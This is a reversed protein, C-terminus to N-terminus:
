GYASHRLYPSRWSAQFVTQVARADQRHGPASSRPSRHRGSLRHRLQSSLIVAADAGNPPRKLGSAWSAAYSGITSWFWNVFDAQFVVAYGMIAHPPQGLAAPGNVDPGAIVLLACPDTVTNTGFRQCPQEQGFDRAAHQRSSGVIHIVMCGHDDETYHRRINM